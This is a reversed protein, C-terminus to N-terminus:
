MQAGHPMGSTKRCATLNAFRGVGKESFARAAHRGFRGNGGLILVTKDM